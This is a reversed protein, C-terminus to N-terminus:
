KSLESESVEIEKRYPSLYGIFEEITRFKLISNSRQLEEEHIKFDGKKGQSCERFFNDSIESKMFYGIGSALLFVFVYPYGYKQSLQKLDAILDNQVGWFGERLNSTRFCIVCQYKRYLLILNRRSGHVKLDGVRNRILDKFEEAIQTM